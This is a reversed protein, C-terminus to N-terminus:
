ISASEAISIYRAMNIICSKQGFCESRREKDIISCQEYYDGSCHAARSYTIRSSLYHPAYNRKLAYRRRAIRALTDFGRTMQSVYFLMVCAVAKLKLYNFSASSIREVHIFASEIFFNGDVLSYKAMRSWMIFNWLVYYVKEELNVIFFNKQKIRRYQLQYDSTLLAATKATQKARYKTYPPHSPFDGFLHHTYTFYRACFCTRIYRFIEVLSITRFFLGM